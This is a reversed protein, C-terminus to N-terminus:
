LNCKSVLFSQSSSIKQWATEYDPEAQQSIQCLTDASLIFGRWTLTRRVPTPSTKQQEQQKPAEENMVITSTVTQDLKNDVDEDDNNQNRNLLEANSM